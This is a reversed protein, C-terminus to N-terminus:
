FGECILVECLAGEVNAIAWMEGQWDLFPIIGNALTFSLGQQIGGLIPSLLETESRSITVTSADKVQCWVSGKQSLAAIRIPTRASLIRIM